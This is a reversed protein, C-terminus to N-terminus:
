ADQIYLFCYYNACFCESLHNCRPINGTHTETEPHLPRIAQPDGRDRGNSNQLLRRLGDTATFDNFVYPLQVYIQFSHNEKQFESM